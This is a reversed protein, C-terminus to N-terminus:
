SKTLVIKETQKAVVKKYFEKLQQYYQPSIIGENCQLISITTIKNGSQKVQFKFFGLKDPLGIALTEPISEVKYGEPIQMVVTNKDKWPGAFDVPFKREELKFPNSTKAYFLLPNIYLKGNIEEVLDESSFKFLRALPKFINKDNTVKFNDIEISYDDEIKTIVDEEKLKNNTNRYAYANLDTLKTRVMGEIMGDDSLKVNVKNDEQRHKKPTLLVWSSTGDKKVLRGNWNIARPPLVDIASYTSTADLLINRNNPMTIASIVYNFGRSTPSLPVGNSVTSVLVPNAEFGAARLMATLMLNITASNGTGEKYAKKVNVDAYKNIYGNWKVKSKVFQLIKVIKKSPTDADALLQQLDDKFYNDKNLEGGFNSSKYIEKTVKEWTNSFYKPIQNPYNIATLEYKMGGRYNRFSRVFAEDNKIAPIDTAKYEAINMILRSSGSISKSSTYEKFPILYYGKPRKNFIFWDPIRTTYDLTKVPIDFQFQLDDISTIHPSVLKYKWEIVSGEKINPLTIKKLSYYKSSKEDFYDKKSLKVKSIQGNELNFTYGKISTIREREGSDPKYYGIVTNAQNFGEKNYIKIRNHVETILEFGASQNFKYYTKRQRFLYVANATSDLPYFKEELEAKSVKGFKVEQAFSMTTLFVVLFTVINKM